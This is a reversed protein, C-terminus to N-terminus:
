VTGFRRFVVGPGISTNVVVESLAAAPAATVAVPQGLLRAERPPRKGRAASSTRAASRGAGGFFAVM